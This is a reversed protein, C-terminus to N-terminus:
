DWSLCIYYAYLVVFVYHVKIFFSDLLPCVDKVVGWDCGKNLALVAFLLPLLLGNENKSEFVTCNLNSIFVMNVLVNVSVVCYYM